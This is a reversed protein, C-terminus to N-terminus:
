AASPARKRLETILDILARLAAPVHRRGPYYLCLGPFPPTWEEMLQVLRGEAIYDTVNWHNMFAIGTGALVAEVILGPEDLTLTGPVDLNISEARREFEGAYINGGPMRM